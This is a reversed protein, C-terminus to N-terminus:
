VRRRGRTLPRYQSREAPTHAPEPEPDIPKTRDEKEPDVWCVEIPERPRLAAEAAAADRQEKRLASLTRLCRHLTSEARRLYRDINRTSKDASRCLLPDVTGDSVDDFCVVEARRCRHLTWAAHVISYVLARETPTTPKHEEVAGDLLAQYAEEEGPFVVAELAALGHTLANKSSQQKGAETKPGTSKQANARNANIQAQSAM